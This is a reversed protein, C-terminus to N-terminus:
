QENWICKFVAHPETQLNNYQGTVSLESGTRLNEASGKLLSDYCM